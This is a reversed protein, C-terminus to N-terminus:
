IKSLGFTDLLARDFQARQTRYDKDSSAMTGLALALIIIIFAGIARLDFDFHPPAGYANMGSSGPWAILTIFLIGSAIYCLLFIKKYEEYTSKISVGQEVREKLARREEAIKKGSDATTGYSVALEHRKALEDQLYDKEYKHLIPAYAMIALPLLFILAYGGSRGIDRLRQSTFILALAGLLVFFAGSVVVALSPALSLLKLSIFHHNFYTLALVVLLRLIFQPRNARVTPSVVYSLPESTYSKESPMKIKRGDDKFTSEFSHNARLSRKEEQKALKLERQPLEESENSETFYLEEEDEEALSEALSKELAEFSFSALSVGELSEAETSIGAKRAREIWAKAEEESVNSAIKHHKKVFLIRVVEEEKLKLLQIVNRVIQYNEIQDSLGGNFYVNYLTRSTTPESKVVETQAQPTPPPTQKIEEIFDEELGLLSIDIEKICNAGLKSLREILSEAEDDSLQEAVTQRSNSFFHKEVEERSLKLEQM